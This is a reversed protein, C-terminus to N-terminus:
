LDRKEFFRNSLLLSVYLIPLSLLFFVGFVNTEDTTLSLLDFGALSLGAGLIIMLLMILLTYWLRGKELGLKYFFPYGFSIIIIGLTAELTGTRFVSLLGFNQFRILNSVSGVLFTLLVSIGICILALVYKEGVIALRSFPLGLAYRDWQSKEDFGMVLVPLKTVIIASLFAFYLGKGLAVVFLLALLLFLTWKAEKKLIYWDKALLAKM